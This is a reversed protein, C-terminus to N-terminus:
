GSSRYLDILIPNSGLEKPKDVKVPYQLQIHVGSLEMATINDIRTSKYDYNGTTTNMYIHDFDLSFRHKSSDWDWSGTHCGPHTECYNSVIGVTRGDITQNFDWSSGDKGGDFTIAFTMEGSAGSSENFFNWTDLLLPVLSSSAEKIATKNHNIYWGPIDGTIKDTMVEICLKVDGKCWHKFGNVYGDM